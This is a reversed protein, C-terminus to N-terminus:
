LLTWYTVEMLKLMFDLMGMQMRKSQCANPFIIEQEEIMDIIKQLEVKIKNVNTIFIKGVDVGVQVQKEINESLTLAGLDEVNAQVQQRIVRTELDEENM